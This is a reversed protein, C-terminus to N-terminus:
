KVIQVLEVIYGDPDEILALDSAGVKPLTVRVPESRPRIGHSALDALMQRLDTVVFTMNSLAGAPTARPAVAGPPPHLIQLLEVMSGVPSLKVLALAIRAGDGGGLTAAAAGELITDEVLKGGLIDVYFKKSAALDAVVLDVHLLTVIGMAMMM